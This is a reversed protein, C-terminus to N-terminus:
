KMQCESAFADSHTALAKGVLRSKLKGDSTRQIQRMYIDQIPFQNTNFRFSGRVSTFNADKLAKRFAEKDELKGGVKRVASDILMAADYAQSAYMTPTRGYVREFDAVFRQNASNQLDVAWQSANYLGLMADGVAKITDEDGSFGTTLVAMQKDLGAASLQKMFNVGMGGPLFFYVADPKSARLTALEAAYDLQGLKSYTEEVVTGKYLRKFGNVAERGGPYNPAIVSIRKYGKETAFKGMAAPIDENQWAVAFFRPDCKAGAYERPGTNTSIYVTDSRLIEPLVPLLVNSFVVGTIVDVKDRKTFRDVAKRAAQPDQQDDVVNLDVKLGGLKGGSHQVALSFGDRVENGLASGHGSLTTLFGISVSDAALATKTVLMLSSTLAAALLAARKSQTPRAQRM